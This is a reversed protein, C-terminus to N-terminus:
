GKALEAAAAAVEAVHGDVKVKRWEKAITGDAAVLFTSREVGMSKKGYMNKEVWAGLKDIFAHDPDSLLVFNLSEKAIFKAHSALDDTSIGFVPIKLKDFAPKADRFGCSETTCGPTMDRPYLYLVYATGKLATNSWTKGDSGALKFAPIKAM